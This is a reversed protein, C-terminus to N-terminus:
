AFLQLVGKGLVPDLEARKLRSVIATQHHLGGERERALQRRAQHKCGAKFSALKEELHAIDFAVADRFDHESGFRDAARRQILQGGEDQALGAM